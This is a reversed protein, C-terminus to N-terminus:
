DYKAIGIYITDLFNNSDGIPLITHTYHNKSVFKIYSSNNSTEDSILYKPYIKNSDLYDFLFKESKEEHTSSVILSNSLNDFSLESLTDELRDFIIQIQKSPNNEVMVGKRPNYEVGVYKFNDEIDNNSILKSILYGLRGQDIGFEYVSSIKKNLILFYSILRYDWKPKYDVDIVKYNKVGKHKDINIKQLNNIEKKIFEKDLEYFKSIVFSINEVQQNNLLFTFNTHEKSNFLWVLGNKFTLYARTIFYLFRKIPILFIILKKMYEINIIQLFTHVRKNQM